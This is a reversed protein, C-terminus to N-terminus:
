RRRKWVTRDRIERRRTEPSYGDLQITESVKAVPDHPMTAVPVATSEHQQSTNTADIRLTTWRVPRIDHCSRHRSGVPACRELFKPRRPASRILSVLLLCYRSRVLSRQRTFTEPARRARRCCQASPAFHASSPRKRREDNPTPERHNENDHPRSTIALALPM